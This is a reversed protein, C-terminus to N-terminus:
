DHLLERIRDLILQRIRTPNLERGELVKRDNIILAPLDFVRYERLENVIPMFEAPGEGGLLMGRIIDLYDRDIRVTVFRIVYNSIRRESVIDRVIGKIMELYKDDRGDILYLKINIIM